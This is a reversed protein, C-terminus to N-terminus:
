EILLRVDWYDQLDKVQDTSCCGCGNSFDAIVDLLAIVENKLTKLEELKNILANGVAIEDFQAAYGTHEGYPSGSGGLCEGHEILRNAADILEKESSISINKIEWSM